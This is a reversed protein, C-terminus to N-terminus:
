NKFRSFAQNQADIYNEALIKWDAEKSLEKAIMKHEVRQSKHLRSYEFLIDTFSRVVEEETKNLRELIFIGGAAKQKIYRGFGALDSTVAPVGLAASELPTYGWPEYYSPFIGLHGAVMTEYYSLNLLGDSNSLYIPYLIVKVKDDERNLLNNERFGKIIENNNEDILEHTSLPPLDQLKFHLVNRKMTQNFEKSVSEAAMVDEENIFSELLASKMDEVEDDILEKMQYFKNKSELLPIRVNSVACPIFFTAFITKSDKIKKLQDNLKSLSKTFVDVGKNKYENRGFIFFNLSNKLDVKYYPMFYYSFFERLDDRTRRHMISTEEFTPFKNIDLGNLVLVEPKRGLLKEAEYGTIESVTTFIDCAKACAKETTFKDIVGRKKAEEYPNISDIMSYLPEGSGAISRGLMTAHTTFVTPIDPKERKLYLLSIGALWEHFHTVIKKSTNQSIKEILRGVCWSWVLPEIYDWNSFLTDVQFSEWLKSKLIDADGVRNRFDVLITKPEGKILWKGYYCNIGENALEDFAKKLFEPPTEEELEVRAKDPYYPGILLYDKYSKKIIEAKSTVVTYIGGVKNCVEFSSEILLDAKPKRM